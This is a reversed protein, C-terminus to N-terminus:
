SLGLAYHMPGQQIKRFTGVLQNFGNTRTLRDSLCPVAASSTHGFNPVLPERALPVM